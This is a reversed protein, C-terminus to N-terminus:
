PATVLIYRALAPVPILHRDAADLAVEASPRAEYVLKESECLPAMGYFDILNPTDLRQPGQRKKWQFFGSLYHQLHHNIPGIKAFRRLLAPMIEHSPCVGNIM